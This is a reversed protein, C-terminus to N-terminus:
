CKRSFIVVDIGDSHVDVYMFVFAALSFFGPSFAFSLFVIAVVSIVSLRHSMREVDFYQRECNDNPRKEKERKEREREGRSDTERTREVFTM